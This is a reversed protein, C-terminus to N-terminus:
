LYLQISGSDDQLTFFALKGFVRRAMIRGAIAVDVDVSEGAPLDAHAHQLEQASHTVSWQYAYPNLGLDRLQAAKEIRTARFDESAM